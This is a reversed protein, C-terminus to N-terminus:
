EDQGKVPTFHELIEVGDRQADLLFVEPVSSYVVYGDDSQNVYFAHERWAKFLLFQQRTTGGNAVFVSTDTSRKGLRRLIAAMPSEIEDGQQAVVVPIVGDPIAQLDRELCIAVVRDPGRGRRSRLWETVDALIGAFSRPSYPLVVACIPPTGGVEKEFDM